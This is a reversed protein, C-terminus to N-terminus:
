ADQSARWGVREVHVRYRELLYRETLRATAPDLDFHAATDELSHPHGDDLGARYAVFRRHLPHLQAVFRPDLDPWDTEGTPVAAAAPRAATLGFPKWFWRQFLLPQRM